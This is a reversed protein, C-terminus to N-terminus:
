ALANPPELPTADAPNFGTSRIEDEASSRCFHRGTCPPIRIDVGDGRICSLSLLVKGSFAPWLSGLSHRTRLATVRSEPSAYRVLWPRGFGYRFCSCQQPFGAPLFQVILHNTM